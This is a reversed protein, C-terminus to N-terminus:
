NILSEYTLSTAQFIKFDFTGVSSKPPNPLFAWYRFLSRDHDPPLMAVIYSFLRVNISFDENKRFCRWGGWPVRQNMSLIRIRFNM